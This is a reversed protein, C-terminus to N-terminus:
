APARIVSRALKAEGYTRLAEFANHQTCLLRLNDLRTPGGLAFPQIHDLQLRYRSSCRRRTKPDIFECQSGARRHLERTIGVPVHRSDEKAPLTAQAPRNGPDLKTLREALLTKFIEELKLTGKLERYRELMKMLEEDAYFTLETRTASVPRETERLTHTEPNTTHALLARDIERRSKGAVERIITARMEPAIANRNEKEERRFFRQVTAATTVSLEGSRLMADASPISAALRMAQVRTAAASESFGLADVAYSFISSFGKQLHLRMREVERLHAITELEAERDRRAALIASEHLEDNTLTGLNRM